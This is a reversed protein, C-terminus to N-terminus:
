IRALAEGSEAEFLYVKGPSFGVSIQTDEEVLTDIDTIMTLLEGTETRLRCVRERGLLEVIEVKVRLGDEKLRVSEPRVGVTVAGSAGSHAAVRYNGVMVAGDEFRGDFFNMTPSGIFGAVFLNAPQEYVEQPLGQQVFRGDEMIVIEDSITMAEEQDHTVFITTIGTTKQIRRIEERTSRRLKADLNSLPEDLLLIEPNKALARAIAVRQQQGGSLQAPKRELLESIQVIRAVEQIREEIDKRKWKANKLPFAINQSVTMHPYLSYNQFVLGIKREQTDLKTVDRDGFYIKGGTLEQLGSIAYLATSKGCGSPGLLCILKSEPVELNVHNVAIVENKPNRRDKFKVTVDELRIRVAIPEKIMMNVVINNNKQLGFEKQLLWDNEFPSSFSLFSGRKQSFYFKKM